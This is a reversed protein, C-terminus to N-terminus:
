EGDGGKDRPNAANLLRLRGLCLQKLQCVVDDDHALQLRNKKAVALSLALEDVHPPIAGLYDHHAAPGHLAVTVSVRQGRKLGVIVDRPAPAGLLQKSLTLCLVEGFRLLQTPGRWNQSCRRSRRVTRTKGSKKGDEFVVLGDARLDDGSDLRTLARCHQAIVATPLRPEIGLSKAKRVLEPMSRAKMKRM